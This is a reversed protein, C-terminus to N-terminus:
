YLPEFRPFLDDASTCSFFSCNLITVIRNHYTVTREKRVVPLSIDKQIINFEMRPDNAGHEFPIM